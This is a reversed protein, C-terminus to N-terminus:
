ESKMMGISALFRAADRVQDPTVSWGFNEALAVLDKIRAIGRRQGLMFCTKAAISLKVYDQENANKLIEAAKGLKDWEEPYKKAKAQAMRTGEETLRLDYRAVEFGAQDVAGGSAATQTAFGLARLRDAAGAVESSYPGYFHPRYGLDDVTETLLGLFYITKQFKTKGKIEGGMAHFALHVFDYTNM